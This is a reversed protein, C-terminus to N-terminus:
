VRLEVVDRDRLIYDRPVQQGPFKTSGWVRASKLKKEFDRHVARAVDAIRSGRCLVLPKKAPEGDPPKTYVRILNLNMYIDRKIQEPFENTLIVTFRKGFKRQLERIGEGDGSLDCKTILIFARRYVATGELAEEFERVGVPEEVLVVANHIGHNLLLRKIEEEGGEMLNGGRIDIGGSSRREVWVAPPRQNIRIGATELEKLLTQVQYVPNASADVVLAIVDASRAVSLPRAGLGKGLGSGEVVAPVEVLQIQVDEFQMMGPIPQLTTFPYGAVEPKAATLKRLLASKGSNPLGLLVVQAAGEKKLAFAQGGRGVRRERKERLEQRLKALRSKLVRLLKETGKHKPALRIMEETAAIKEEITKARSYREEARFYEPRL